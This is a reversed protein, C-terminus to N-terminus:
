SVSRGHGGDSTTNRPKSPPEPAVYEARNRYADLPVINTESRQLMAMDKTRVVRKRPQTRRQPTKALTRETRVAARAVGGGVAFWFKTYNIQAEAAASWLAFGVKLSQQTALIPLM